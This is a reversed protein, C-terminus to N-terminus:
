GMIRVRSSITHPTEYRFTWSLTAPGSSVLSQGLGHLVILDLWRVCYMGFRGIWGRRRDMVPLMIHVLIARTSIMFYAYNALYQTILSLNMIQSVVFLPMRLLKVLFRHKSVFDQSIIRWWLSTNTEVKRRQLVASFILPIGKRRSKLYMILWCQHQDQFMDRVSLVHAANTLM